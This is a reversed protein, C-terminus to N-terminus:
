AFAMLKGMPHSLYLPRFSMYTNVNHLHRLRINCMYLIFPGTGTAIALALAHPYPLGAYRYDIISIGTSYEFAVGLRAANQGYLLWAGELGCECDVECTSASWHAGLPHRGSIPCVGLQRTKKECICRAGCRWNRPPHCPPTSICLPPRPSTQPHTRTARPHAQAQNPITSGAGHCGAIAHAPIYSHATDRADRRISPM